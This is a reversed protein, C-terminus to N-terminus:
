KSLLNQGPDDKFSMPLNGPKNQTEIKIETFHLFSDEKSHLTTGWLLCVESRFLCVSPFYPFFLNEICKSVAVVFSCPEEWGLSQVWAEQMEPLNKVTQTM